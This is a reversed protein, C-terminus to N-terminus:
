DIAITANMGLENVRLGNDTGALFDGSGSSRLVSTIDSVTELAANVSHLSTAAFRQGSKLWSSIMDITSLKNLDKDRATMQLASCPALLPRYTGFSAFYSYIAGDKQSRVFIDPLPQIITDTVSSGSYDAVTFRSWKGKNKGAYSGMAFLNGGRQLDQAVGTQSMVVLQQVPGANEPMVVQTWAVDAISAATGVNKENGSRFMGVSTALVALHGSVVVDLFSGGIVDATALTVTTFNNDGLYIRDLQKDTLVYLEGADAVLERVFQYNGIKKFAMGTVIGEFGPKLAGVIGSGDPNVLAALGGPGGAFIRTSGLGSSAIEVCEIAGVNDLEGGGIVAVRTQGGAPFSQTVTGNEFVVTNASFNGKNVSFIAGPNILRSTEVLALNKCGTSILFTANSVGNYSESFDFMGHIGGMNQPLQMTLVTSLDGLGASDGSNWLSRRVIKVDADIDPTDNVLGTIAGDTGDMFFGALTGISSAAPQWATWGSIRGKNDFLARSAYLRRQTVGAVFDVDVAVVVSDGLVAIDLVDGPAEGRGVQAQVDTTKLIDANTTAPTKFYRNNFSMHDDSGIFYDEPDSDYKALLGFSTSFPDSVLPVAYVEKQTVGAAGNGGVVVAYHLWTSTQMTRVKNLTVYAGPIATGVIENNGTFVVDPAIARFTITNNKNIFGVVLARAGSSASGDARVGLSMYLLGLNEDMLMDNVQTLQLDGGTAFRLSASTKDLATTSFYKLVTKTSKGNADTVEETTRALLAVGSGLQGFTGIGPKVAAFISNGGSAIGVIGGTVVLPNASLINTASLMSVNTATFYPNLLYITTLDDTLVVFPQQTYAPMVSSTDTIQMLGLHQIRKGYLPNTTVSVGNITVAEPALPVFKNEGQWVVALAYNKIDLAPGAQTPDAAVFFSNRGAVHGKISFNFSTGTDPSVNGEILVTSFVHPTWLSLCFIVRAANMCRM